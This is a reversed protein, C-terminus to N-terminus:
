TSSSQSVTCEFFRYMLLYPLSPCSLLPFHIIHLYLIHVFYASHIPSSIHAGLLYAPRTCIRVTSASIHITVPHSCSRLLYYFLLYYHRATHLTQATMQLTYYAPSAAPCLLMKFFKCYILYLSYHMHDTCQM